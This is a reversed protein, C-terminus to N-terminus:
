AVTDVGDELRAVWPFHAHEAFRACAERVIVDLDFGFAELQRELVALQAQEACDARRPAGSASGARVARGRCNAAPRRRRRWPATFLAGIVGLRRGIGEGSERADAHAFVEHGTIGD